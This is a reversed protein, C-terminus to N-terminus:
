DVVRCIDGILEKLCRQCLDCEITAEDGFVSAYGGTFRIHHFEQAELCDDDVDYVKHCKDCEKTEAYHQTVTKEGYKIV